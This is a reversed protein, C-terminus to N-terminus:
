KVNSMKTKKTRVVVSEGKSGCLVEPDLVVSLNVEDSVRKGPPEGRGSDERVDGNSAHENKSGLSAESIKMMTRRRSEKREEKKVEVM